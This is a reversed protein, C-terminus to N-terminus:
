VNAAEVNDEEEQKLALEITARLNDMERYVKIHGQVLGQQYASAEKTALGEKFADVRQKLDDMLIKWGKHSTMDFIEELKQIDEQTV